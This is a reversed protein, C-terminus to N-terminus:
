SSKCLEVVFLNKLPWVNSTNGRLTSGLKEPRCFCFLRSELSLQLNGLCFICQYEPVDGTAASTQRILMTGSTFTPGEEHQFLFASENSTKM